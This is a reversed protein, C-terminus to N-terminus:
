KTSHAQLSSYVHSGLMRAETLGGEVSWTDDLHLGFTKAAGTCGKLSKGREGLRKLNM